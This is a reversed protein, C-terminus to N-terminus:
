PLSKRERPIFDDGYRKRGAECYAKYAEEKTDFRGLHARKGNAFLIAQWRGTTRCFTVGKYGSTNDRRLPHSLVIQLGTIEKLNAIRNDQRNDNVHRIEHEPWVGHVYFWALRHGQYNKGGIKIQVYGWVNVSGAVQGARATVNMTQKWVFVGTAPNYDLIERLRKLPLAAQKERQLTAKTKRRKKV